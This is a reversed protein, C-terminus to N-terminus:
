QGTASEEGNPQRIRYGAGLVTHILPHAFGHDIKQRLRHLHMDIINGHPDFDYNWALLQPQKHQEQHQGADISKYQGFPQAIPHSRERAPPEASGHSHLGRKACRDDYNGRKEAGARGRHM